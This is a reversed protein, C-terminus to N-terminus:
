IKNYKRKLNCDIKKNKGVEVLALKQARTMRKIVAERSM